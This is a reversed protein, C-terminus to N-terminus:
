ISTDHIKILEKSTYKILFGDATEVTIEDGKVEAVTGDFNDDLVSVKDGKSFAAM